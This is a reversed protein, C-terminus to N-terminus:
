RSSGRTRVCTSACRSACGGGNGYTAFGYFLVWFTEWGSLRSPIAAVLEKIPTFYGVFTIGTWLAVAIWVGHKAAKLGIKRASWPQQDLKMRKGRDGEIRREIWMFLETYVTQPCAYGCWLRGAVATFLFLSLASIILIGTLFIFDQPWLVLDFIYFRRAGLDFLVAQRGNWVLWPLGYFVVQTFIIVAWRWTAFVGHVARPYITKRVEYLDMEVANPEVSPAPVRPAPSSM